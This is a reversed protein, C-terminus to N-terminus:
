RGAEAGRGLPGRWRPLAMVPGWDVAGQTCPQTATPRRGLAQCRMCQLGAPRDEPSGVLWCGRSLSWALCMLTMRPGRAQTGDGM